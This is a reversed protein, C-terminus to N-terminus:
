RTAEHQNLSHLLKADSTEILRGIEDVLEDRRQWGYRGHLRDAFLADLADLLHRRRLDLEDRIKNMAHRLFPRVRVPSTTSQRTCWACSPGVPASPRARTHSFSMITLRPSAVNRSRSPPLTATGAPNRSPAIRAM